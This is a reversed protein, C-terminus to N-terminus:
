TMVGLWSLKTYSTIRSESAKIGVQSGRYLRQSRMNRDDPDALRAGKAVRQKRSRDPSAIRM